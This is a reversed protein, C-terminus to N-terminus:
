PQVSAWTPDRGVMQALWTQLNVGGSTFASPDGLMTHGEGTTLFYRHAPLGDLVTTALERVAAEYGAADKFLYSRITRDRYSTLLASRDNPYKAALARYLASFDGACAPCLTGTAQDLRWQSTWTARLLPPVADGVFLPGSDNVVFLAVSPFYQRVLDHNLTAGFGGASVGALVVDTAGALAFTPALRKLYAIMNSRGVHHYTRTQGDGTYTAVNSGAHLDGTCYPVFVLNYDRFPNATDARDLASGALERAIAGLQPAGFPGHTATNLVYCTQYDACAGGGSLFILSKKAGAALNVGVGTTSGDDCKADPFDVWTWTGPPAAIPAGLGADFPPPRADVPTATDATADATAADAPPASDAAAAEPSSADLSSGPAASTAGCAAALGLSFTVLAGLTGLSRSM